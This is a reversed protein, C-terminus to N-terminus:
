GNCLPCSAEHLPPSDTARGQPCYCTTHLWCTPVVLAAVVTGAAQTDAGVAARPAASCAVEKHAM